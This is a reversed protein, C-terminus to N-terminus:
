RPQGSKDLSAREPNVYLPVTRAIAGVWAAVCSPAGPAARGPAGERSPLRACHLDAQHAGKNDAHVAIVRNDARM